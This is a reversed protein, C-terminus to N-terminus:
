NNGSRMQMLIRLIYYFLTAVAAFLELAAAVHMDLSYHHIINSTTYLIAGAALAVVFFSFWMGLNLGFIMAVIILGFALWGGISLIPALFSFDKRTLFASMTLGGFLCMTLIGAMPIVGTYQPFYQAVSLIPLFILAEAVVYLGLGLYQMGISTRSTAWMRALFGAGMFLGLVILWGFSGALYRGFFGLVGDVGFTAFIATEIAVFALIAGALHLYTRRIFDARENPRAYIVPVSADYAYSM